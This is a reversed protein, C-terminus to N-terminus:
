FIFASENKGDAFIYIYNYICSKGLPLNEKPFSHILHTYNTEM